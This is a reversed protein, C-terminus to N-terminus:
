TLTWLLDFFMPVNYGKALIEPSVGFRYRILRWINSNVQAIWGNDEYLQANALLFLPLTKLLGKLRTAMDVDEMLPFRLYGNLIKLIEKSIFLGQDGYPLGFYSSLINAWAGTLHGYFNSQLVKM